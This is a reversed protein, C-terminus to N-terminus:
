EAHDGLPEPQGPDIVKMGAGRDALELTIRHGHLAVVVYAAVDDGLDIKGSPQKVALVPAPQALDHRHGRAANMRALHMLQDVQEAVIHHQLETAARDTMRHADLGAGRRIPDRQFGDHQGAVLSAVDLVFTRLDQHRRGLAALWQLRRQVDPLVHAKVVRAGVRGVINRCRRDSSAAAPYQISAATDSLKLFSFVIRTVWPANENRGSRDSWCILAWSSYQRRLSQATETSYVSSM